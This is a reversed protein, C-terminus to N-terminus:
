SKGRRGRLVGCGALLLLAPLLTVANTGLRVAAGMDSSTIVHERDRAARIGQKIAALHSDSMAGRLLEVEEDNSAFREIEQWNDRYKRMFSPDVEQHQESLSAVMRGALTEEMGARFRQGHTVANRKTEAAVLTDSEAREVRLATADVPAIDIGDGGTLAKTVLEDVSPARAPMARKAGRTQRDAETFLEDPSCHYMEETTPRRRAQRSPPREADAIAIGAERCRRRWDGSSLGEEVRVAADSETSGLTTTDGVLSAIVTLYIIM